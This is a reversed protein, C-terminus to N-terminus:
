LGNIDGGGIWDGTFLGYLISFVFAIALPTVCILLVIDSGEM